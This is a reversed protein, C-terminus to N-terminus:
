DINRGKPIEVIVQGEEAFLIIKIKDYKNM